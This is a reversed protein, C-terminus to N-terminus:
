QLSLCSANTEVGHIPLPTGFPQHLTLRTRIHAIDPWLATFLWHEGLRANIWLYNRDVTSRLQRQGTSTQEFGVQQMGSPFALDEAKILAEKVTWLRYFDILPETSRALSEGENQSGIYTILNHVDRPHITELDVGPKEVPGVALLSAGCKHSLCLHQHAFTENSWYKGLRSTRWSTRSSLAPKAALKQCDSPDLMHSNYHVEATAPIFILHINIM